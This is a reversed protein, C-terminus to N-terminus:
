LSRLGTLRHKLLSSCNRATALGTAIERNSRGTALEAFVTRERDTLKSLMANDPATCAPALGSGDEHTAGSRVGARLM